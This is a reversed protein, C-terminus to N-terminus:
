LSAAELIATNHFPFEMYQSLLRLLQNSTLTGVRFFACTKSKEFNVLVQMCKVNAQRSKSSIGVGPTSVLGGPSVGKLCIMGRVGIM